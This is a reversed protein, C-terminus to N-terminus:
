KCFNPLDGEKYESGLEDSCHLGFLKLQSTPEAGEHSAESPTGLSTAPWGFDMFGDTLVYNRVSNPTYSKGVVVGRINRFHRRATNLLQLHFSLKM